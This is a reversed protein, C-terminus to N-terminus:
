ILFVERVPALAILTKAKSVEMAPGFSLPGWYASSPPHEEERVTSVEAQAKSKRNRKVPRGSREGNLVLASSNCSTLIGTHRTGDNLIVCIARGLLPQLSHEDYSYDSDLM